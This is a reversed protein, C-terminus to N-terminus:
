FVLRLGLQMQRPDNAATFTGLKSNTQQGTAPNFTAATNVTTFQTHNFVNFASARLQFHLREYVTINKILSLDWNNIGPGRFLNPAANGLTGVAPLRLAATNFNQYFTRQDKPLVPNAVVDPRPSLSATGTIDVGTTTTMTVGLPAGSQFINIGSLQWGDLVRQAAANRWPSKPLDYIYSISLVHTRDYAAEGYYYNRPRVMPEITTSDTDAYDMAKSWTWAAGFQFGKAFRRRASVQMSHYNASTGFSQTYIPGYGPIPRLFNNTLVKGTTPDQNSALFDAGIPIPNQDVLWQLHRSLTAQYGVDVVTKFGIDRQISLSYNMVTAINGAIDPAYATSPSLLQTATALSAIQGYTVTPNGALPPQGVFNVFYGETTPRNYFIGFGGRLATKGNGFLDYAFGVRPGWQLGRNKVLSNPLSGPDSATVMGDAVNGKGPAIAGILAAAYQQGTTPDIGVRQGGVMAPQILKVAQAASYQSFVFGSILNDRETMPPIRYLRLGLDVTLRRTAKWNDQIFGEQDWNRINMWDRSTSQTYSYFDGLAANSYAYGTNFPNTANNQFDFAGNFVTGTKKQNRTFREVYIGAKFTHSGRIVTVNDAWHIIYYRNYLPFRGEIALNAATPVGGFTANPISGVDNTSASFQPANFGYTSRLMKQLESDTYTNDAPQAFFGFSLENILTPRIIRTWKETTGRGHTHYTKVMLPWNGAATSIGLAGTEDDGYMNLSGSITNSSNVIYDIKGTETNLPKDYPSSFVYNYNGGSIARNSFNPQPFINLLAVGNPDLRNKPIQNNPFPNNGNAPDRVITLQGAQNLSQSFDGQRELATPVTVTGQTSLTSPWFEQGWYFFLKDRGTNFHNPITIPGSIGYTATNYRYRPRPLNNLNNFFNNANFAENRTFYSALGHFAKTGSKTVVVVNSGSLRGFEAQYNSTLVKVEAVADQSVTLKMQFGNGMDNSPTGDITVNNTTNRNGAVYISPNTSLDQAKATSVVGPLLELLSMFNRGRVELDEVEASTIEAARESSRTMVSAGQAVVDVTEAVNGLELQVKGLARTEGTVLVVNELQRTKFGAQTFTVTYSGPELSSLVFDGHADPVAERVHGTDVHIAKIVVGPVGLGTPDTVTGVLSSSALQALIAGAALVALLLCRFTLRNLSTM